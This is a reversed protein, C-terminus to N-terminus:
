FDFTQDMEEDSIIVVKNHPPLPEAYFMKPLRDDKNTFGANRNFEREAKLIRLGLATWDEERFPKGSKAAVMNCVNDIGASFGSQAFDCIGVTDVAAMNIQSKRSNEVQGEASFPDLTGGWAEINDAVVWGATHDGGMPTTSYTVAMGQLARPDYAAISQNKVVPVRDNKFYGGVAGPGSGILKGIASGKAVEEIMEIAAQADGFSKYGSDMAVAIAVGTSITDLGIDDCLFDMKAIADLDSNGIMAGMSWITEYELSSTIYTGAEDVYENSCRIICQACGKHANKGGRRKIVEAMTEGTIKEVEDFQGKRANCTPLAGVANIPAVLMASGIEALVETGDDDRIAKAYNQAATKFGNPDTLPDALKGGKAVVVAKVGKSGMVAGLGGRGAARCPRGDADTTQISAATLMQDGAPGICTISSTQPFKGKLTEVLEYTRKGKFKKGDMLEANGAGDIKLLYYDTNAPKGEIVIATIGLHALDSAVTGGVNSEKIGGTLPSKAGISLRSSNVLVTGSLYGPAIILKNEPGLPDCTPVIEKSIITSTLGRGGLMQYESPVDEYHISQDTMNIRIIKM